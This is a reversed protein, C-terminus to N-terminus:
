VTSNYLGIYYKTCICFVYYKIHVYYKVYVYQQRCLSSCSLAPLRRVALQLIENRKKEGGSFGENVNRQLYKIDMNLEELLPSLFGYFQVALFARLVPVCATCILVVHWFYLM